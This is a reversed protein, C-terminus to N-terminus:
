LGEPQTKGNSRSHVNLKKAMRIYKILQIQPTAKATPYITITIIQILSRFIGMVLFIIRIYTFPAHIPIVLLLCQSM